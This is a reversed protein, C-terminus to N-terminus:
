QQSCAQSPLIPRGGEVEWRLTRADLSHTSSARDGDGRHNSAHFFTLTLSFLIDQTKFVCDWVQALIGM